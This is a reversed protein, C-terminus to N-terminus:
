GDRVLASSTFRDCSCGILICSFEEAGGEHNAWLHGCVCRKPDVAILAETGVYGPCECKSMGSTCVGKHRSHVGRDHGCNLCREEARMPEFNNCAGWGSDHKYDMVGCNHCIQSVGSTM